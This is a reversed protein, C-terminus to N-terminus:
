PAPTIFRSFKLAFFDCSASAFLARPTRRRAGGARRVCREGSVRTDCRDGCVGCLCMAEAWMSEMDVFDDLWRSKCPGNRDMSVYTMYGGLACLGARMRCPRMRGAPPRCRWRCPYRSLARTAASGSGLSVSSASLRGSASRGLTLAGASCEGLSSALPFLRRKGLGAQGQPAQLTPARPSTSGSRLVCYSKARVEASSGGHVLM